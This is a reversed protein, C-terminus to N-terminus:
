DDTAYLASKYRKENEFLNRTGSGICLSGNLTFSRFILLWHRFYWRRVKDVTAFCYQQVKSVQVNIIVLAVQRNLDFLNSGLSLNDSSSNISLSHSCSLLLHTRDYVISCIKHSRCTIYHKVSSHQKRRSRKPDHM